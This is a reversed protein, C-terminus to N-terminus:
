FTCFPTSSSLEKKKKEKNQNSQPEKATGDSAPISLSHRQNMLIRTFYSPWKFPKAVLFGPSHPSSSSILIFGRRSSILQNTRVM